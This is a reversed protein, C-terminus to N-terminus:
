SRTPVQTLQIGLEDGVQVLEGVAIRAGAQRLTVQQYARPPLPLISGSRLASLEAVSLTLECLEVQLRLPLDGVDLAPPPDDSSMPSLTDIDPHELQNVTISDEHLVYDFLARQGLCARVAMETLLVIDGRRLQYLRKAPLRVHGMQLSLTVSLDARLANIGPAAPLPGQLSGIWVPGEQAQVVPLVGAAPAARGLPTARYYALAPDNFRLPLDVTSLGALTTDDLARWDLGALDPLHVSAWCAADLHCIVSGGGPQALRFSLCPTVPLPEVTAAIGHRALASALTQAMVQQDEVRALLPFRSM